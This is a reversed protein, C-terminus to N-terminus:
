VGFGGVVFAVLGLYGCNWEKFENRLCLVYLICVGSVVLWSTRM